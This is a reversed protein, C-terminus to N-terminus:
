RASTAGAGLVKTVCAGSCGLLRALDARNAVRQGGGCLAAVVAQERRASTMPLRSAPKAEVRSVYTGGLGHCSLEGNCIQGAGDTGTLVSTDAFDISARDQASCCAAGVSCSVVIMRRLLAM